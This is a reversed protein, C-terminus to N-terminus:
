EGGLFRKFEKEVKERLEEFGSNNVIIINSGKKYEISNQATIRKAVEEKTYKSRKMVRNIRIQLESEVLWVEDTIRGFISEVPIPADVVCVKYHKDKSINCITSLIIRTVYKHTIVNLKKLEDMNDFVIDSLKSRNISSDDYLIEFGFCELVERYAETGKNLIDKAIIDADIIYAGLEKLILSVSSKGAGIGGTLGIIKIGRNEELDMYLNNNDIEIIESINNQKM